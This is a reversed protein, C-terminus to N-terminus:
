ENALDAEVQKWEKETLCSRKMFRTGSSPLLKCIRKEEPAQVSKGGGAMASTGQAESPAIQSALPPPSSTGPAAAVLLAFCPLLILKRM